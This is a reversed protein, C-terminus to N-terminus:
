GDKKAVKLKEYDICKGKENIHLIPKACHYQSVMNWYNWKCKKRQCGVFELHTM